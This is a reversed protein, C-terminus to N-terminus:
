LSGPANLQPLFGALKPAAGWATDEGEEIRMALRFAPDILTEPNQSRDHRVGVPTFLGARQM